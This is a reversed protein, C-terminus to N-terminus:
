QDAEVSDVYHGTGKGAIIRSKGAQIFEFKFDMWFRYSWTENVLMEAVKRFLTPYKKLIEEKEQIRTVKIEGTLREDGHEAIVRFRRPMPVNAGPVPQTELETFTYDHSSFLIKGREAVVLRQVWKGELGSASCLVIGITADETYMWFGRWDSMYRTPLLDQWDHNMSGFGKLQLTKGNYTLTGEVVAWPIPFNYRVFDSSKEFLIAGNGQQFSPTLIQYTFEAQLDKGRSRFYYKDGRLEIRTDGASIGFGKEDIKVQDPSIHTVEVLLGSDADSVTLATEAYGHSIGLNNLQVTLTVIIGSEKFQLEHFWTDFYFRSSLPHARFMEVDVKDFGEVRGNVHGKFMQIEAAFGAAASLLLLSVLVLAKIRITKRKLDM